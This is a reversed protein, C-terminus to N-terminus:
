RRKIFQDEFRAAIFTVIEVGVALSVALWGFGLGAMAGLASAVWILAATTLGYVKEDSSRIIAGAGLFGIGSAIQGIIRTADVQGSQASALMAMFTFIMSGTSILIHTKLGAAKKRIGREAGVIAGCLVACLANIALAEILTIDVPMIPQLPTM